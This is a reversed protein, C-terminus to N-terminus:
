RTAKRRRRVVQKTVIELHRINDVRFIRDEERLHCYGELYWRDDEEYVDQVTVRRQSWQKRSAVYYEMDIDSESELAEELIKIRPATAFPPQNNDIAKSLVPPFLLPILGETLKDVPIQLFDPLEEEIRTLASKFIGPDLEDHEIKRQSVAKLLALIAVAEGTTLPIQYFEAPKPM